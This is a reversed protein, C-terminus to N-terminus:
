KAGQCAVSLAARGKQQGPLLLFHIQLPKQHQLCVLAVVALFLLIGIQKAHDLRPTGALQVKLQGHWCPIALEGIQTQIHQM